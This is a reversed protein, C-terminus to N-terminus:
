GEEIEFVKKNSHAGVLLSVASRPVQFHEALLRIIADNARGHIPKEKTKVVYWEEGETILAPQPPIVEDVKQNTRARVSIKM